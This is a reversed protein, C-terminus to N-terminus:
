LSLGRLHAPGLDPELAWKQGMSSGFPADRYQTNGQPTSVYFARHQEEQQADRDEIDLIAKLNTSVWRQPQAPLISLHRCVAGPPSIGAEV